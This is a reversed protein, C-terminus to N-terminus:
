SYRTQVSSIALRLEAFRAAVALSPRLVM